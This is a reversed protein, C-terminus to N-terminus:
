EIVLLTLTVKWLSPTMKSLAYPEEGVIKAKVQKGKRPHPMQFAATAHNIDYFVFQEWASLQSETVGYSCVINSMRLTTKPRQIPPGSDPGFTVKPTSLTETYGELLPVTPFNGPWLIVVSAM